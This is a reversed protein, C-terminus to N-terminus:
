GTATKRNGNILKPRWNRSRRKPRKKDENWYLMDEERNYLRFMEYELECEPKRYEIVCIESMVARRLEMPDAKEIGLYDAFEKYARLNLPVVKPGLTLIKSGKRRRLKLRDEM